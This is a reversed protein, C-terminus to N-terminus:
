RPADEITRNLADLVSRAIADAEDDRVLASGALTQEQRPTRLQVLSVALRRGHVDVMSAGVLELLLSEDILPRAAALTAEAVARPRSSSSSAAQAHGTHAETGDRLTVDVQLRVGAQTVAVRDIVVRTADHVPRDAEDLQVISIVRHDTPVGFRAMLVTQVDRVAQKAQKDITTLVHLEDVQRDFGPVLRAGLIGPVARLAREVEDRVRPDHLDTRNSRPTLDVEATIETGDGLGTDSREV